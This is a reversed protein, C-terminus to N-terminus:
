SSRGVRVSASGRSRQPDTREALVTAIREMVEGSKPRYGAELLRVMSISCGALAAVQQQSLGAARRSPGLFGTPAKDKASM